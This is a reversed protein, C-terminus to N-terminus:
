VSDVHCRQLLYEGFPNSMSADLKAPRLGLQCVFQSNVLWIHAVDLLAPM